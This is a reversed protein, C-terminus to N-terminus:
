QCNDVTTPSEATYQWIHWESTVNPMICFPVGMLCQKSSNKVIYFNYTVTTGKSINLPILWVHFLAYFRNWMFICFDTGYVYVHTISVSYKGYVDMQYLGFEYKIIFIESGWACRYRISCLDYMNGKLPYHPRFNKGSWMLVPCDVAQHYELLLVRVTWRM